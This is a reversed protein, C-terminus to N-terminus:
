LVRGVPGQQSSTKPQHRDVNQMALFGYEGDKLVEKARELELVRDKRRIERVKM